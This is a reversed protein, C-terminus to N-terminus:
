VTQLEGTHTQAIREFEAELQALTVTAEEYAEQNLQEAAIETDPSHSRQASLKLLVVHSKYLRRIIVPGHSTRCCPLPLM